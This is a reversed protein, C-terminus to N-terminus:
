DLPIKVRSLKIFVGMALCLFLKTLNGTIIGKLVIPLKTVSKLWAIDSWQLSPDILSAVYQALGSDGVGKVGGSMDPLKFNALSYFRLCKIHLRLSDWFCTSILFTM